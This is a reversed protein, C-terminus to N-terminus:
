ADLLARLEAAAAAPDSAELVAAGVAARTVGLARLPPLTTRDLGGIPFLVLGPDAALLAQLVAPDAPVTGAKTRTPAMAGFGLHDAGAALARRVEHPERTSSGLAREPGLLERARALGAAIPDAGAPDDAPALAAADERGLHVGDAPGALAAQLDDNVILPLGEGLRGRLAELWTRRQATTGGVLRLQVAQVGGSVGAAVRDLWDAPPRDAAPASAILYLRVAALPSATM